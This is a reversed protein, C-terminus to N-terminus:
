DTLYGLKDAYERVIDDEVLRIFMDFAFGILIVDDIVGFPGAILAPIIDLPSIVYAATLVPVAKAFLSVRSDLFLHYSLVLRRWLNEFMQLQETLPNAQMNLQEMMKNNRNGNESNQTTSETQQEAM